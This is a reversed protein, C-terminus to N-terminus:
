AAPTRRILRYGALRVILLALGVVVTQGLCLLMVLTGEPSYFFQLSGVAVFITVISIPVWLLKRGPSLIAFSLPPVPAGFAAGLWTAEWADRGSLTLRTIVAAIAAALTTAQLINAISFQWKKEAAAHDASLRLSQLRFGSLRAVLMALFIFLSQELLLLGLAQNDDGPLIAWSGAIGIVGLIVQLMLSGGGIAAWASLLSVQSFVLGFFIIEPLTPFFLTRSNHTSLWLCWESVVFTAILLGILLRSSRM